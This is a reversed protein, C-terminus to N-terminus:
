TFATIVETGNGRVLVCRKLNKTMEEVLEFYGYASEASPMDPLNTIVLDADCSETVIISNLGHALLLENTSCPIPSTLQASSQIFNRDDRLCSSARQMFTPDSLSNFHLFDQSGCATIQNTNAASNAVDQNDYPDFSVSAAGTAMLPKTGINGPPSNPFAECSTSLISNMTRYTGTTKMRCRKRDTGVFGGSGERDPRRALVDGLTKMRGCPRCSRPNGIQESSLKKHSTSAPAVGLSPGFKEPDAEEMSIIPGKLGSTSDSNTVLQPVTKAHGEESSSCHATDEPCSAAELIVDKADLERSTNVVKVHFEIQLRFDRVFSELQTRMEEPDDGAEDALVFLRTRCAHWVRNKKLLFPLLLLVGGDGVIWWIDCTGTLKQTMDPWSVGKTVIAVKQFVVATQVLRILNSRAAEGAHRNNWNSPWAALVCNPQFAGLGSVQVLSMMAEIYDNTYVVQGFGEIAYKQLLRKMAEQGDLINNRQKQCTFLGGNSLETAGQGSCIGGLITIGNGGKLQSAFTLLEPEHIELVDTPQESDECLLSAETIVLLQPRWNKTHAQLDIHALINRALQFKM